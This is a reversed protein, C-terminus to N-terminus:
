RAGDAVSRGVFWTDEVCDGSDADSWLVGLGHGDGYGDVTPTALNVEKDRLGYDIIKVVATERMNTLGPRQEM